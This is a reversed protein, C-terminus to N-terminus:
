RLVQAMAEVYADIQVKTHLETVCTLITQKLEPFEDHLSKGAVIKHERLKELIKVAPQHRFRITFEKFHPARFVPVEIDSISLFKKIAYQTKALVHRGLEIIGRKGLLSLYVASAVACLTNNTCINSTAKERRIHQERTQLSLFFARQMNNITRSLGVIRGPMSRIIKMDSRCAMIGLLPGGCNMYNGLPQGEGVVIDADFDGPPRIIGLSTPDVGIVFLAKDDHTIDAVAKIETELYGLYSPNELYIAATKTSIKEKLDELVIQGTERSQAVEIVSIEMPNVYTKLVAKRDPSIYKPVIIERKKTIRGALRGAEGLATGWDYMSANIVDMELLEAILSQYEFLAQLIGQDSEPQYPTYSTLFESRSIIELVAAPIYHPWVGAGLFVSLDNHTQNNGLIKLIVNIVEQESLPGPIDFDQEVLFKAPVDSFLDSVSEINLEKLMSEWNRNSNPIFQHPFIRRKM